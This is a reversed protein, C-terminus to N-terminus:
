PLALESEIKESRSGPVFKMFSRDIILPPSWQGKPLPLIGRPNCWSIADPPLYIEGARGYAFFGAEDAPNKDPNL